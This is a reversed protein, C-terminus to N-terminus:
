ETVSLLFLYNLVYFLLPQYLYTVPLIRVKAAKGIWFAGLKIRLLSRSHVPQDLDESPACTRLSTESM